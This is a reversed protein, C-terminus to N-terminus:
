PALEKNQKDVVSTVRKAYAYADRKKDPGSLVTPKKLSARSGEVSEGRGIIPFREPLADHVIERQKDGAAHRM